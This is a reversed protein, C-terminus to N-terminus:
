FCSSSSVRALRSLTPVRHSCSCCTATSCAHPLCAAHKSCVQQMHSARMCCTHRMYLQMSTAHCASCRATSATAFADAASRCNTSTRSAESDLITAKFSSTAIRLDLSFLNTASSPTIRSCSPSSSDMMNLCCDTMESRSPSADRRGGGLSYCRAQRHHRPGARRRHNHQASSAGGAGRREWCSVRRAHVACCCKSLQSKTRTWAHCRQDSGPGYVRHTADNTALSVAMGEAECGNGGWGAMIDYNNRVINWM